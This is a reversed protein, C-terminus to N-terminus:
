CMFGKVIETPFQKSCLSMFKGTVLRKLEPNIELTDAYATDRSDRASVTPQVTTCLTM